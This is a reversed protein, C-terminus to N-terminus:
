VVGLAQAGARFDDMATYAGCMRRKGEFAKRGHLVRWNDFVVPEGPRLKVQVEFEGSELIEKWLKAARYWGLMVSHSPFVTLPSRDCNNWRVQTLTSPSLANPRMSPDAHNLVPGGQIHLANNRFPGAPSGEAAFVIPITSLLEYAAKDTRYLADAAAFGDSFTSEGGLTADFDAPQPTTSSPGHSLLHFLQLGCPDNFYTTDTHLPLSLNTYATDIPNAVSTFDWFGGYHTHRIPGLANLLEITAEPSPPTNSIFALGHTQIQSFLSARGSQSTLTEFSTQPRPSSPLFPTWHRTAQHRQTANLKSSPFPSHERLWSWPFLSRHADGDAWIIELGDSTPAISAAKTSPDLAFTDLQRQHTHPHSCTECLCHDRLWFSPYRAAEGSDLEVLVEQSAIDNILVKPTAPRASSSILRRYASFLCSGTPARPASRSCRIPLPATGQQVHRATLLTRRSSAQWRLTLRSPGCCSRRLPSLGSM